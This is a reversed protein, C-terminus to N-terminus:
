FRGGLGFTWSRQHVGTAYDRFAHAAPKWSGDVRLLGYHEESHDGTGSWDLDVPYDWLCWPMIGAVGLKDSADFIGKYYSAQMEETIGYGDYSPWGFEQLIVPKGTALFMATYREFERRWAPSDRSRYFHMCVADVDLDAYISPNEFNGWGGGVVVLREDDIARVAAVLTAVWGAFQERTVTTSSPENRLDWMFAATKNMLRPIVYELQAIQREILYPDVYMEDGDKGVAGSWEPPGYDFFSLMVAIGAESALDYFAEVRSIIMENFMGAEPEVLRWQIFTRVCNGGLAKVRALDQQIITENFYTWTGEWPRDRPYYNVGVPRFPEGNWTFVPAPTDIMFSDTAPVLLGIAVFSLALLWAGAVRVGKGAQRSGRDTMVTVDRCVMLLHGDRAQASGVM